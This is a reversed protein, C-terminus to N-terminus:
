ADQVLARAMPIDDEFAGGPRRVRGVFRGEARFGLRAYLRIAGTNGSRVMLEVRTIAPQLDAAAAFLGDFLAAGLGQGQAAPRVAVTLDSLVHRFQAPEMRSAVIVGDLRGAREVGLALRGAAPDAVWKRAYAITIADAGGLARQGAREGDRHAARPDAGRRRRCAGKSDDTQGADPNWPGFM